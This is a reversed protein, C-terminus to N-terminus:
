SWAPLIQLLLCLFYNYHKTSLPKAPSERIELTFSALTSEVGIILHSPLVLCEALSPIWILFSAFIIDQLIIIIIRIM